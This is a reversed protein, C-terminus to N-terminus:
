VLRLVTEHGNQSSRLEGRAHDIILEVEASEGPALQSRDEILGRLRLADGRAESADISTIRILRTMGPLSVASPNDPHGALVRSTLLGTGRKLDLRGEILRTAYAPWPSPPLGARAQLQLGGAPQHTAGVISPVAAAVGAAGAAGVAALTLFRRRNVTQM